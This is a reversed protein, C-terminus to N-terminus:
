IDGAVSYAAYWTLLSMVITFVIVVMGSTRLTSLEYGKGVDWFLHRIGNGLHFFLSLTLGFLIIKGVVSSLLDQAMAFADPGYLGSIVWNALLLAGFALAVGTARHTISLISTIQPKYVMLHPSLPRTKQAM